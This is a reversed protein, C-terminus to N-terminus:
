LRGRCNSSARRRPPPVQGWYDGRSRDLWFPSQTYFQERHSGGGLGTGIFQSTSPILTTFCAMDRTVSRQWFRAQKGVNARSFIYFLDLKEDYLIKNPGDFYSHYSHYHHDFETFIAKSDHLLKWKIGDKSRLLHIGMSYANRTTHGDTGGIAYWPYGSKKAASSSPAYIPSFNHLINSKFNEPHLAANKIFNNKDLYVSLADHEIVNMSNGENGLECKENKQHVVPPSFATANKVNAIGPGSGHCLKNLRSEQPSVMNRFVSSNEYMGYIGIWASLSSFSVVILLLLPLPFDNECCIASSLSVQLRERRM